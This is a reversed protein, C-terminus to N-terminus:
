RLRGLAGDVSSHGRGGAQRNRGACRRGPAPVDLCPDDLLATAEPVAAKAAPGIQILAAAAAKRVAADPDRLLSALLPAAKEAAPGIRGLADAAAQRVAPECDRLLGSLAPVAEKADPGLKGLHDAAWLRTEWRSDILLEILGPVVVKAASDVTAVTSQPQVESAPPNDGRGARSNATRGWPWKRCISDLATRYGPYLDVIEDETVGLWPPCYSNM